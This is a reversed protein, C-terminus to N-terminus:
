TGKTVRRKIIAGTQRSILLNGWEDEEGEARKLKKAIADPTQGVILQAFAAAGEPNVTHSAAVMFESLWPWAQILRWAELGVRDPDEAKAPKGVVYKLLM